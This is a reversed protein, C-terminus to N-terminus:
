PARCPPIALVIVIFCFFSYILLNRGHGLNILSLFFFSKIYYDLHTFSKKILIKVNQDCRILQISHDDNWLSYISFSNAKYSDPELVQNFSVIFDKHGKQARVIKWNGSVLSLFSRKSKQKNGCKM